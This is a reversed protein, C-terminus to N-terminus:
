YNCVQKILLLQTARADNLLPPLIQGDHHVVPRSPIQRRPQLETVSKQLIAENAGRM